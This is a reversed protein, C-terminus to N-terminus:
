KGICFTRFIRGLVDDPSVEGCLAALDDLARRMSAAVLEPATLHRPEDLAVLGLAEDLGERASRLAAEHRPLLALSDAGLSVTRDRLIQALRQRLAEVGAGTVASVAAEDQGWNDPTTRGPGPERDIMTRVLVRRRPRPSPPAPLAGPPVCELLLEARDIAGRAAAQMLRNLPAGDPDDGAVDVLMIEAPGTATRVHLPEELVDRTTGAFRSVVARRRGLLANFLTSKGSNPPGCLVVRPIADLAEMGVARRLYSEIRDRLGRLRGRLEPPAIPVVDEQDSFDIGAEVLALAGALEDRLAGALRGLRGERLHAAARLQADNTAAITAAVGEAETLSMRGGLYARATFEGPGAHRADLGRRAASGLLAELVRTLLWPNGPLQIEAADQGTYSRPARFFLVLCPVELGEARLRARHLGPATPAGALNLHEAVLDITGPGSLRVIGRASSGPPSAVAAIISRLDV